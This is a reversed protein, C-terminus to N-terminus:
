PKKETSAAPAEMRSFSARASADSDILFQGSVVVRDDGRLGKRIEIYDGSEVGVVVDVPQFRGEGLAVVVASRTGTRILAERPVYLFGGPAASMRIVVEALSNPAVAIDGRTLRVRAKISRAGVDVDREVADVVAPWEKGPQEAMRVVAGIGARVWSADRDFIDVLVVAGNGARVLYGQTTLERAPKGRTVPATRVGLSNAIEPRVSVIPPGDADSGEDAYAPVLDMDMFPSKGPKDFKPGPVMPDHWYLVKREASDTANSAPTAGSRAGFYWGITAAMVIAVVVGLSAVMRQQSKM